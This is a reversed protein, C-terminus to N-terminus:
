KPRRLLIISDRQLLGIDDNAVAWGASVAIKRMSSKDNRPWWIDDDPLDKFTIPVKGRDWGFVELKEWDGYQHVAFGGPKMKNLTNALVEAISSRNHHCLVGFSWLFDFYNTPVDAYL